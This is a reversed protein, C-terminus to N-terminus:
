GKILIPGAYDIYTNSFAKGPTIRAEPLQGMLQEAAQKRQRICPVCISIQQKIVSRAGIIWYKNRLYQTCLQLGGHLLMRHAHSALLKVIVSKGHLIVPHTTDYPMNSRKIRGSARLIGGKDTFPNLKHLPSGKTIEASSKLTNMEAHFYELQSQKIWYEEANLLEETLLPKTPRIKFKLIKVFRMVYATVRILKTWSGYQM